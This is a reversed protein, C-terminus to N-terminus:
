ETTCYTKRSQRSPMRKRSASFRREQIYCSNWMKDPAESTTGEEHTLTGSEDHKPQEGEIRTNGVTPKAEGQENKEAEWESRDQSDQDYIYEVSDKNSNRYKGDNGQLNMESAVIQNEPVHEESGEDTGTINKLEKALTKKRESKSKSEFKTPGGYSVAKGQWVAGEM